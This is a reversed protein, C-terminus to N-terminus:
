RPLGGFFKVLAANVEAPREQQIWHGAGSLEIIQLNPVLKKMPEHSPGHITL